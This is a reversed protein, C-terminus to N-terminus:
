TIEKAPKAAFFKVLWHDTQPTSGIPFPNTHGSNIFGWKKYFSQARKNHEWVSLYIARYDKEVAFDAAFQMLAAGIKKSHFEKLIYIRKLEISHYLKFLPVETTGDKLRLYGTPQDDLFSIYFYDDENSLEKIVQPVNFYQKVFGNIDDDTCTGSFTELFTKSGMDSLLEADNINARRIIIM